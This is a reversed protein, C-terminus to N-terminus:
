RRIWLLYVLLAGQLVGTLWFIVQFSIKRTKHRFLQQALLAGPSGGGLAFLHLTVEPVRSKGSRSRRKDYGYLLVTAVNVGILAAPVWGVGLGLALGGAAAAAIVIGTVAYTLWPSRRSRGM